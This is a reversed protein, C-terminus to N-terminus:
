DWWFYWTPDDLLDAALASISQTGQTVIDSCYDYQETALVMAAERTKPPRLVRMEIVDGSIGVLEAGYIDAWRRLVAVHEEPRPCANWGGWGLTAPVEAGDNSPVIAVVTQRPKGSLIDFPLTFSSPRPTAAPWTGVVDWREGEDEEPENEHHWRKFLATVDLGASLELTRSAATEIDAAGEALRAEDSEGGVVIPWWGPELRDRLEQWLGIASKGPVTIAWAAASEGCIGTKRFTAGGIRARSLADRAFRPVGGPEVANSSSSGSGSNGRLFRM